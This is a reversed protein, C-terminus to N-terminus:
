QILVEYALSVYSTAIKRKLLQFFFMIPVVFTVMAAIAIINFM